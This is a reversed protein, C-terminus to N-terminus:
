FAGVGADSDDTQPARAELDSPGILVYGGRGGEPIADPELGYGRHVSYLRPAGGVGAPASIPAAALRQPAAAEPRPASAPPDYLSPARTPASAPAPAAATRLPLPVQPTFPAPEPLPQRYRGPPPPLRAPEPAEPAGRTFTGALALPQPRAPTSAEPAAIEPARKGAWALPAPGYRDGAAAAPLATM